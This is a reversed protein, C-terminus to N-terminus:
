VGLGCLRWSVDWLRASLSEDYSEKSSNAVRMKDFYKGTVGELEKSSALFIVPEAGKASGPLFLRTIKSIFGLPGMPRSWLNTSITGPHVSNVTVGTGRLRRALEYGFMVLALKSNSYAAFGARGTFFGELNRIHGSFHAVSSVNIIRSPVSKKIIDLLLNTLLFHSLYNVQITTEIGDVTLTRTPKFLGANNILVHLEGYRSMFEQALRRVSQLSSLDCLLLEVDSNGSKQVIEKRAVSGRGESRSVMVVPAGMKALGLATAKGIGSNAGTILCIRGKM